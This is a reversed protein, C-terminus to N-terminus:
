SRSGGCKRELVDYLSAGGMRMFSQTVLTNGLTVEKMNGIDFTTPAGVYWGDSQKKFAECKITNEPLPGPTQAAVYDVGRLGILLLASAAKLSYSM